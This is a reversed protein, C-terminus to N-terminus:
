QCNYTKKNTNSKKFDNLIRDAVELGAEYGKLFLHYQRGKDMKFDLIKYGQTDIKLEYYNAFVKKYDKNQIKFGIIIETGQYNFANIPFNNVLGGDVIYSNKLKIPKFFGPYSASMTIAKAVSFTDPFIQYNVLDNPLVVERYHKVDTGIVKLKYENDFLLDKFVRVGKLSLLYNIEEEVYYTSYMGKEVIMNTIKKPNKSLFNTFEMKELIYALEKGKYGATILGAIVAGISTGAAKKCVFGKEELALYAGVYAIGKMGGGQFIGIYEM